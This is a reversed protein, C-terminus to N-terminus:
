VKEGGKVLLVSHFGMEMKVWMPFVVLISISISQKVVSIETIEPTLAECIQCVVSKGGKTMITNM